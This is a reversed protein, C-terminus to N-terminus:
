MQPTHMGPPMNGKPTPSSSANEFGQMEYLYKSVASNTLHYVLFFVAAHTAAVALKSGGSPLRVLVGPTLVFFLAAVFLSMYVHFM